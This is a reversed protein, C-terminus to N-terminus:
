ISSRAQSFDATTPASTSTARAYLHRVKEHSALNLPRYPQAIGYKFVHPLEFRELVTPHLVSQDQIHRPKIPWARHLASPIWDWYWDRMSSVECHQMGAASPFLHLQARDVLIPEPLATAENLMWQLAVDSLRSEDDPYSGGIDSHNGAFWVQKLWEPEGAPYRVLEGDVDWAVRPFNERNEDISMAHRAYRVRKNLFTNYFKLHWSVMHWSFDGKNPFDRISKFNEQFHVYLAGVVGVAALASMSAGFDVGFVAALAYAAVAAIGVLIALLAAIVVWRFLGASGLAAVTDFVGIFYPVVNAQGEANNSAYTERFRRAKELREAKYKGTDPKGSGHEYVSGVAEDAIKRLAKGFRPVKGGDAGQTPIGCCSLVGSVCRATYAGRSFGFLYIRDGPEYHKIIAEYCDAINRNIGTGTAGSLMKRYLKIPRIPISGEDNETGLGADYFAVQAHPDIDNDPNVRTARYLKYVNSLAQDPKLGGAQGTGDSFILINKAM